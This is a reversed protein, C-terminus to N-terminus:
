DDDPPDFNLWFPRKIKRRKAAAMVEPRYKKFATDMSHERFYMTFWATRVPNRQKRDVPRPPSEGTLFWELLWGPCGTEVRKARKGGILRGM